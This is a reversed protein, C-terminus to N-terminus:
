PTTIVTTELLASYDVSVIASSEASIGNGDDGNQNVEYATFGLDILFTGVAYYLSIEDDTVPTTPIINRIVTLVSGPLIGLLTIEYSGEPEIYHDAPYYLTAYYNGASDYITAKVETVMIGNGDGEGAGERAFNRLTVTLDNGTASTETVTVQAAETAVVRLVVAGEYDDTMGCGALAFLLPIISLMMIARRVYMTEESRFGKPM